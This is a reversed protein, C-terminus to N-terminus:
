VVEGANLINRSCIWSWRVNSKDWEGYSANLSWIDRILEAPLSHNRGQAGGLLRCSYTLHTLHRMLMWAYQQWEPVFTRFNYHSIDQQLSWSWYTEAATGTICLIWRILVFSIKPTRFIKGQFLNFNWIAGWVFKKTKTKWLVCKLCCKLSKGAKLLLYCSGQSRITIISGLIVNRICFIIVFSQMRISCRETWIWNELFLVFFPRFM